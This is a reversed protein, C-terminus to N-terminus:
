TKNKGGRISVASMVHNGDLAPIVSLETVPLSEHVAQSSEVQAIVARRLRAKHGAGATSASVAALNAWFGKCPGTPKTTGSM